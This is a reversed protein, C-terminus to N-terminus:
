YIHVISQVPATLVYLVRYNYDRSFLPTQIVMAPKTM